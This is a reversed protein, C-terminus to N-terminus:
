KIKEAVEFFNSGDKKLEVARLKDIRWVESPMMAGENAIHMGHKILALKLEDSMLKVLKKGVQAYYGYEHAMLKNKQNETTKDFILRLLERKTTEDNFIAKFTKADNSDTYKLLEKLDRQKPPLKIWELFLAAFIGISDEDPQIDGLETGKIVFVYGYREKSREVSDTMDVGLLIGGLAYIIAYYLSGTAYARGSVPTLQRKATYQQPQIGREMIGLAAAETSTGHYYKRRRHIYQPTAMESVIENIKM